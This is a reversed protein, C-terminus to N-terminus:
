PHHLPLEEEWDIQDMALLFKEFPIEQDACVRQIGRDENGTVRLGLKSFAIAASPIAVLLRSVTTDPDLKLLCGWLLTRSGGLLLNHRSQHIPRIARGASRAKAIARALKLSTVKAASKRSLHCLKGRGFTHADTILGFAGVTCTPSRVFPLM